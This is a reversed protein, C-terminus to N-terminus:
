IDTRVLLHRKTSLVGGVSLSTSFLYVTPFSLSERLGFLDLRRDRQHHRNRREGGRPIAALEDARLLVPRPSLQMPLALQVMRQRCSLRLSRSELPRSSPRLTSTPEDTASALTTALVCMPPSRTTPRSTSFISSTFIRVMVAQLLQDKIDPPVAESILALSLSPYTAAVYRAVAPSSPVLFTDFATTLNSTNSVAAASMDVSTLNGQWWHLRTSDNAELGPVILSPDLTVRSAPLSLDIMLLMYTGNSTSATDNLAMVTTNDPVYSVNPATQLVTASHRLSRM